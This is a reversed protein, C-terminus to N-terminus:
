REDLGIHGAYRYLSNLFRFVTLAVDYPHVFNISFIKFICFDNKCTCHLASTLHVTDLLIDALCFILTVFNNKAPCSELWASETHSKLFICAELNWFIM